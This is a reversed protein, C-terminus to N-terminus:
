YTLSTGIFTHRPAESFLALELLTRMESAPSTGSELILMEDGTKGRQIFETDQSGIRKLEKAVAIHFRSDRVMAHAQITNVGVQSRFKLGEFGNEAVTKEVNFERMAAQDSNLVEYGKPPVLSITENNMAMPFFPAMLGHAELIKAFSLTASIALSNGAWLDNVSADINFLSGTNTTIKGLGAMETTISHSEPFIWVNNLALSQDTANQCNLTVQKTAYNVSTILIPDSTSSRGTSVRSSSPAGSSDSYIDLPMGKAGIFAGSAWTADSVTVIRSAASGPNTSTTNAWGEEGNLITWEARKAAGLTLRKIVFKVSDLYAAAADQSRAIASYTVQARGHIQYADVQADGSQGATPPIYTAGTPLVGPAAASFGHELALDVPQHYKNGLAVGKEFGILKVLPAAQEYLFKVKPAYRERFNGILSAQSNEGSM